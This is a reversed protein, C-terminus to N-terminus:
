KGNGPRRYAFHFQLLVSFFREHQMCMGIGGKRERFWASVHCPKINVVWCCTIEIWIFLSKPYFSLEVISTKPLSLVFCFFFLCASGWCTTRKIIISVSGLLHIHFYHYFILKWGIKMTKRKEEDEEEGDGQILRAQERKDMLVEVSARCNITIHRSSVCNATELTWMTM